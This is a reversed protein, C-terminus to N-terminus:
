RWYEQLPPYSLAWLVGGMVIAALVTTVALRIWIRPVIPAGRESGRVIDGTEEQSRIGFPLVTFLCLWWIVFYIALYSFWGM